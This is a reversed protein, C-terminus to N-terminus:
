EKFSHIFSCILRNKMDTEKNFDCLYFKSSVSLIPSPCSFNLSGLTHESLFYSGLAKHCTSQPPGNTRGHGRSLWPLFGLELVTESEKTGSPERGVRAPQVQGGEGGRLGLQSPHICRWQTLPLSMGCVWGTRWRAEIQRGMRGKMRQTQAWPLIERHQACLLHTASHWPGLALGAQDGLRTKCWNTIHRQAFRKVESVRLWRDSQILTIGVAHTQQSIILVKVTKWLIFEYYIDARDWSNNQM